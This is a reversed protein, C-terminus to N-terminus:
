IYQVNGEADVVFAEVEKANFIDKALQLAAIMSDLQTNDVPVMRGIADSIRVFQDEVNVEMHFDYDAGAVEFTEFEYAVDESVPAFYIHQQM